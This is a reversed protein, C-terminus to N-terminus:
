IVFNGGGASQDGSEEMKQALRDPDLLRQLHEILMDATFPKPLFELFPDDQVHRRADAESYGSMLLVPLTSSMIRLERLTTPGDLGPMTLDLLVAAFKAGHALALALAEYGDSAVAVTHGHRELISSALKRVSPEDDVVLFTGPRGPLRAKGSSEAQSPTIAPATSLPLFMRFSSGKGLTSRVFFAGRHSRVIGLVAALGLGRGAFKTTFFPDFIRALTEPSMGCGNDDVEFAAYRGGPLEQGLRADRLMERTLEVESTSVHIRGTGAGIADSANIVLNMIVQRM